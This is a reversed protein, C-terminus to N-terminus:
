NHSSFWFYPLSLPSHCTYRFLYLNLGGCMLPFLKAFPRALCNAWSNGRTHPPTKTLIEGSRNLIASVASKTTRRSSFDFFLFRQRLRKLRRKDKIGTKLIRPDWMMYIAMIRGYSLLKEELVIESLPNWEAFDGGDEVEVFWTLLYDLKM